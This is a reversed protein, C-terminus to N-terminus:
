VARAKNCRMVDCADSMVHWYSIDSRLFIEYKYKYAEVVAWSSNWFSCALRRVLLPDGQVTLHNQTLFTHSNHYINLAIAIAINHKINNDYETDLQASPLGPRRRDHIMRQLLVLM